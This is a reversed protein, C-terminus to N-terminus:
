ISAHFFETAHLFAAKKLNAHTKAEEDEGWQEVQWDEDIRSLDWLQDVLFQGEASALALSFSGTLTVMDHFGTLQFDSMADMARTLRSLATEDQPVPIVGTALKLRVGFQDAIWDLLPGWAQQQRAVLGEPGEARYLLLDTDAYGALHEKVEAAQVSVKDIAVNASRTWPMTAPDVLEFQADWEAAIQTAIAETPVVLPRKAPTKVPRDDLRIVFGADESDVVVGKWFRKAAWDSM